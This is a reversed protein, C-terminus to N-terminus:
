IRFLKEDSSLELITNRKIFGNPMKPLKDRLTSIILQGNTKSAEEMLSTLQNGHIAELGDHCIFQPYKIGAENLFQIYALDFAATQSMKKGAGVNAGVAALAFSLSGRDTEEFHLLYQEGYLLKSLESFYRNFIAVRDQLLTEEKEIKLRTKEIAAQATELQGKLERIDKLNQELSGLQKFKEQLESRIELARMFEPSTTVAELQASEQSQLAQLQQSVEKARAQLVEIQSNLFRQKRTRLEIVFGSLEEWERHLGPIYKEAEQYISRVVREDVGSFEKDIEAVALHLTAIEAEIDGLTSSVQSAQSRLDAVVNARESIQPIEGRLKTMVEIGEVENRLHILLQEIEGEKRVRNLAQLDRVLFKRRNVLQQRQELVDVDTFGFLFLHIAEYNTESGYGGLFKLTKSMRDPSSRVFKPALQRLTPKSGDSGFLVAKVANRYTAINRYSNDDVVFASSNQIHAANFTREFFHFHSPLAEVKLSVSVATAGHLYDYVEQNIKKFESDQWIDDGESGLCFDILRLVTTKGINNGSQTASRTPRDLILNLGTKFKIERILTNGRKITLNVLRM